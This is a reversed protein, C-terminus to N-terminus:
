SEEAEPRGRDRYIQDLMASLSSDDALAGAQQLLAQKGHRGRLWDQIATVLFRWQDDIQVGPLGQETVLRRVTAAPLRLYAAAEDLTMVQSSELAQAM